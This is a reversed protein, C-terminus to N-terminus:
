RSWVGRPAVGGYLRYNGERDPTFYYERRKLAMAELRSAAAIGAKADPGQRCLGGRGWGSTSCIM